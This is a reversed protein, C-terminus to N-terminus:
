PVLMKRSSFLFITVTYEQGRSLNTARLPLSILAFLVFSLRVQGAATFPSPIGDHAQGRGMPDIGRKPVVVWNSTMYDVHRAMYIIPYRVWSTAWSCQTHPRIVCNSTFFCFPRIIFLNSLHYCYLSLLLWIAENQVLRRPTGHLDHFKSSLTVSVFMSHPTWHRM